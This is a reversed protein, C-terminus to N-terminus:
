KLPTTIKLSGLTRPIRVAVHVFEIDKLWTNPIFVKFDYMMSVAAVGVEPCSCCTLHCCNTMPFLFFFVLTGGCVVNIVVLLQEM